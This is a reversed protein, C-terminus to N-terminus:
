NLADRVCRWESRGMDRKKGRGGGRGRGGFKQSVKSQDSRRSSPGAGRQESARDSQDASSMTATAIFTCAKPACLALFPDHFIYRLTHCQLAVIKYNRSQPSCIQSPSSAELSMRRGYFLISHEQLCIVTSSGRIFDPEFCSAATTELAAYFVAIEVLAM